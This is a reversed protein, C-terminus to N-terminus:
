AHEAISRYFMKERNKYEDKEIDTALFDADKALNKVSRITFSLRKPGRNIEDGDKVNCEEKNLIYEDIIDVQKSLIRHKYKLYADGKFILLSRPQLLLSGVIEEGNDPLIYEIVAKTIINSIFM